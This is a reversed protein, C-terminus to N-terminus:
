AATASAQARRQHALAAKIVDREPVGYMDAFERTSKGSAEYARVLAEQRAIKAASDGLAEDLLASMAEDKLQVREVFDQRSLGSAEFAASLQARLKPLLDEQSRAQRRRHLEVLAQALHEPAVAEVAKGDLDHRAKGAAVCQLYRTSRAHFALAAKLDDRQFLEPHRTLLDQFIGRKLPLFEAGFLHPYRTALQELVPLATQKREAISPRGKPRTDTPAPTAPTDSAAPTPLTPSTTM